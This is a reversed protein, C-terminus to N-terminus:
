RLSDIFNASVKEMLSNQECRKHLFEFDFDDLNQDQKACSYFYEDEGNANKRKQLCQSCVGKLMCQMPANLSAIAYKAEYFAPIEKSHRLKAVEHMMKNNGITFIRDIKINNNNKFYANIADTVLGNFYPQEKEITSIILDDCALKMLDQQVILKSNQYGAFFIVRCNKQYKLLKAIRTLVQNGRGGGILVVVENEKIDTPKGSPGMFICPEGEKFDKILSTSGGASIVVGGIIGNEKDVYVATVPIGELAMINGDKIQALNHYNQLRFIHGIDTNKALLPAKIFIEVVHDSINNIKHIRVGFDKIINNNLELPSKEKNNSEVKQLIQDIEKAAVKASALAKVVSGEFQPHLDGLFSVSNKSDRDIKTIVKGKKIVEFYKADKIEYDLKDELKAAINPTTGAAVLLSRCEFERLDDCKLSKIHGYEDLIAESPNTNEIFEIGQSLAANIEQHNQRYAPSQTLKKRYLIKVQGARNFVEAAGYKQYIAYDRFYENAIEKEEPSLKKFLNEYGIKGVRKVFKRIQTIYYTKAETATDTATLGAGVVIIPLRIQLNSFLNERFAGSLQLSMLFDSASRVGKAFNNKINIINPRGAGLCLAVHDFGYQSFAQKETISSGFRIGGFMTFNKRRELLLRIIKLFNKDWRVTIGYEVVGGFGGISRNNLDEYIEDLFKIPKFQCRNSFEDIGSIEKALPEIKLGDIAVVEYGKQLMEHALGFGAPGLGCVLIRKNNNLNQVYHEFNLPNWKTLLAYIEFGFPLRLVDKLVRSEIQPIDVPDQKQYICSKMCDNCIRHGTAAIMPNDIVAMALPAIIFNNAKLLNMESIKEDLPCGELKIGLPDIKITEQKKDILGKKCSDKDQKHCFICYKAESLSRNLGFGKDILSFDDRLKPEQNKNVLDFHDIKQPLIFLSGSQHRLKGSESFLAWIAYKILTEDKDNEQIKKALKIELDDIDSFKIDIKGDFDGVDSAGYKKAINRQVFDRKVQHIIALDQHQKRLDDIENEIQFLEIIFNELIKSVAILIESNGLKKEYFDCFLESNNQALYDRFCADLKLLGDRCYLDNFNINFKPNLFEYFQM